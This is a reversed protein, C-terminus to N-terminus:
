LIWMAMAAPFATAATAWQGGNGASVGEILDAAGGLDQVGSADWEKRAAHCAIGGNVILRGDGEKRDHGDNRRGAPHPRRCCHGRAGHLGVGYPMPSM